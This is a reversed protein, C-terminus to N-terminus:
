IVTPFQLLVGLGGCVHQGKVVIWSCKEYLSWSKPLYVSFKMSNGNTQSSIGREFDGFGDMGQKLHIKM